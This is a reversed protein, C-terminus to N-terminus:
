GANSDLPELIAVDIPALLLDMVTARYAKYHATARHAEIASQDTYREILCFEGGTAGATRFLDYRLCGPERRTQVVMERLIGEVQQENGPRVMFRAIITNSM